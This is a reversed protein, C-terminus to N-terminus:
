PGTRTRLGNDAAPDPGGLLDEGAHTAIPADPAPAHHVAPEPAAQPASAMLTPPSPVSMARAFAPARASLGSTFGEAARPAPTVAKLECTQTASAYDWAMCLNDAACQSACAAANSAPTSIYAGGPRSVGTEGITAAQGFAVSVFAASLLLSLPLIRM